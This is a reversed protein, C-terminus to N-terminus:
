TNIYEFHFEINSYDNDWGWNLFLGNPAAKKLASLYEVYYDRNLYAVVDKNFDIRSSLSDSFVKRHYIFDKDSLLSNPIKGLHIHSVDMGLKGTEHGAWYLSDNRIAYCFLSDNTEISKECFDCYVKNKKSPIVFWRHSNRYSEEKHREAVIRLSDERAKRIAAERQEMTRRVQAISDSMYKQRATNLREFNEALRKNVANAQETLEEAKLQPISKDKKFSKHNEDNLLVVCNANATAVYLEHTKKNYGYISVVGSVEQLIVNERKQYLGHADKSYSVGAVRSLSNSANFTQASVTLFSSLLAIVLLFKRM